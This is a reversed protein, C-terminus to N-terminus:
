LQLINSNTVDVVSKSHCPRRVKIAIGMAWKKNENSADCTVKCVQVGKEAYEQALKEVAPAILKCPGCWTTYYDVLLLQGKSQCEKLTADFHARDNLLM